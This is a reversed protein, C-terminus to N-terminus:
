FRASDTASCGAAKFLHGHGTVTWEDLRWGHCLLVERLHALWCRGDICEVGESSYNAHELQALEQM